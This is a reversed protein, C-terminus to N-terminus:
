YLTEVLGDGSKELSVRVQKGCEPTEAWFDTGDVMFAMMLGHHHIHDEVNDRVVNVGAPTFLEPVYSRSPAPGPMYSFLPGSGDPFPIPTGAPFGAGAGLCVAALMIATM